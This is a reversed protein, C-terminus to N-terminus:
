DLPTFSGYSHRFVEVVKEWNRNEVVWRRGARGLKTTREKNDMCERIICAFDTVSGSKFFLGRENDGVIEKLPKVDSVIIPKALALAEFPKLPTITETAGTSLRPYVLVDMGQYYLVVEEHPVRGTLTFNSELGENIVRLRIHDFRLGDGVMTVHVQVGQSRLEHVVDVIDDLGEYDAFSGVYGITFTENRAPVLPQFNEVDVANHAIHIREASVGRDIAIQRVADNMVVLQDAQTMTITEALEAFPSRKLLHAEEERDRYVLEWLGSVEYLVKLGLQRAAILAPLAILFTSRTHVTGIGHEEFFSKFTEVFSLMHQIEGHSRTVGTSPLRHYEVGDVVVSSSETRSGYPFGPRTVATIDVDHSKLSQLIGHARIAYGGTQDPVSAHTVCLIKGPHAGTTPSDSKPLHDLIDFLELAASAERYFHQFIPESGYTCESIYIKADKFRNQDFLQAVRIVHKYFGNDATLASASKRSSWAQAVLHMALRSRFEAVRKTDPLQELFGLAVARVDDAQFSTRAASFERNRFGWIPHSSFQAEVLGADIPSLSIGERLIGSLALLISVQDHITATGLGQLDQAMHAEYTRWHQLRDPAIRIQWHPAWLTAPSHEILEDVEPKPATDIELYPVYTVNHLVAAWEHQAGSFIIIGLQFLRIDAEFLHQLISDVEDVGLSQEDFGPLVESISTTNDAWVPAGSFKVNTDDSLLRWDKISYTTYGRSERLKQFYEALEPQERTVAETDSIRALIRPAYSDWGTARLSDILALAASITQIRPILRHLLLEQVGNRDESAISIFFDVTEFGRVTHQKSALLAALYQRQWGQHAM